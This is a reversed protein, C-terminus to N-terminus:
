PSRQTLGNDRLAIRSRAPSLITQRSVERDTRFFAFGRVPVGPFQDVIASAAALM